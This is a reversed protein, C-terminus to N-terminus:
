YSSSIKGCHKSFTFPFVCAQGPNYEGVTKCETCEVTVANEVPVYGEATASILYEGNKTIKIKAEGDEKSLRTVSQTLTSAEAMGGEIPDKTEADYM